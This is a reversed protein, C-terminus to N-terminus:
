LTSDAVQAVFERDHSVLLISTTKSLNKLAQGIQKRTEPDLASTPEDALLIKPQQLMAIALAVRQNMGGSLQCPYRKLIASDLNCADFVRSIEKSIEQKKISKTTLVTERIQSGITRVPCFSQVVGQFVMSIDRGRLKAREKPPLTLLDIGDLLIEGRPTSFEPPLLGIIARLLTTKGWGSPGLLGLIEGPHLTLNMDTLIPTGQCVIDLHNIQLM